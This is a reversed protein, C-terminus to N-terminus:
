SSSTCGRRSTTPSRSFAYHACPRQSPRSSEDITVDIDADTATLLWRPPQGTRVGERYAIWLWGGVLLPLAWPQSALWFALGILAGIARFAAQAEDLGGKAKLITILVLVMVGLTGIVILGVKFIGKITDPLAKLRNARNNKAQELRDSAEALAPASHVRGAPSGSNSTWCESIGRFPVVACPGTGSTKRPRDARLARVRPSSM